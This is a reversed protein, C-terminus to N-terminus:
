EFRYISFEGASRYGIQQYIHNSTPNSLDTFLTCFQKGADLFHQSLGAVLATAYGRGRLGPPTYVGSITIGNPLPRNGYAISVPQGDVEWLFFRGHEILRRTTKEIHDHPDNPLAEAAFDNMMEVMRPLDVMQAPRMSGSPASTRTIETLKYNKQSMSLHAPTGSRAAYQYAFPQVLNIEGHVGPIERNNELM